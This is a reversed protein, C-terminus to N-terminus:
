ANIRYYCSVLNDLIFRKVLWLFGWLVCWLVLGGFIPGLIHSALTGWFFAAVPGSDALTLYYSPQTAIGELQGIRYWDIVLLAIPFIFLTSVTFFGVIKEFFKM